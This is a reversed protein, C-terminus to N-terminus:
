FHRSQGPTAAATRQGSPLVRGPDNSWLWAAHYTAHEEPPDGADDGGDDRFALTVHRGDSAVEGICVLINDEDM